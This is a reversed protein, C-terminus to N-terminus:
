AELHLGPSPSSFGGGEFLVPPADQPSPFLVIADVICKPPLDELVLCGLVAYGSLEPQSHDGEVLVLGEQEVDVDFTASSFLM